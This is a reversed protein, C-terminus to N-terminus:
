KKSKGKDHPVTVTASILKTNGSADIAQYTITYVRSNGNGSREARLYISGDEGIQIDNTTNSDGKGNDDENMTISILTVTPSEDCNDSVTITPTILVMKHNPPWLITPTATLALDPPANDLVMIILRDPESDETSDNVILTITHEGLPLQISPNVGNAEYLESDITWTWSYTLEDGDPDNSDSGDLTVEALCDTGVFATQDPGANAVPPQNLSVISVIGNTRTEEPVSPFYITAYNIIETGDNADAKVNVSLDAYGGRHPGVEGAFWIIARTAPNYTGPGSIVSGNNVDIVSGIELTSDDLDEDLTDTFYVGFAIGEGENEYEVTYDLRQGPLVNGEPGYKVSPDRATRIESEHSDIGCSKGRLYFKYLAEYSTVDWPIDGRMQADLLNWRIHSLWLYSKAGSWTLERGITFYGALIENFFPVPIKKLLEPILATYPRSQNLESYQKHTEQTILQKDLLWDLWQQYKNKAKNTDYLEKAGELVEGAVKPCKVSVELKDISHGEVTFHWMIQIEDTTEVYDLVPEIHEYVETLITSMSFIGSNSEDYINATMEIPQETAQLIDYTVNPNIQVNTKDIPVTVIHDLVTGQSLGWLITERASVHGVYKAPIDDFHWIVEHSESNYQGGDTSSVYNTTPPLKMIVESDEALKVGDNRYEIIYDITQGPSVRTPGWTKVKLDPAPPLGLDVRKVALFLTRPPESEDLTGSVIGFLPSAFLGKLAVRGPAVVEDYTWGQGSGTESIYSIISFGQGDYPNNGDIIRVHNMVTSLSGAYDGSISGEVNTQLFYLQTNPFEDSSQYSLNGSLQITASTTTTGLQGIKWTAQYQDYIGSGLISETLYGEVAASIEGSMSGKLYIKGEEPKPFVVGQWSGTYDVGEFTTECQGKSFGKGIWPGTTVNIIEFSNFDLTSNFDGEVTVNNLVAKQGILTEVMTSETSSAEVLPNIPATSHVRIPDDVDAGTTSGLFGDNSNASWDFVLQEETNPENFNWYGILGAEFGTLSTYMTSQIQEGTRAYNWIRVEDMKGSLFYPYGSVDDYSFYLPSSNGVPISGVEKTALLNGDLYIGMVQGDYTAAIHYWQDIELSPNAGTYWNNWYEGIAFTIEQEQDPGGMFLRYNGSTRDGGKCVLFQSNTWHTTLRDLKAWCEVTIETPNLLPTNPVIVRDDGDFKLANDVGVVVTFSGEYRDNIDEGNIGDKDQDMKDGDLDDIHSGIYVNYEGNESQSPFSIRYTNSELFEITIQNIPIVGSPTIINVDQTTFTNNDISRSFTVDVHDVSSAVFGEPTHQSVWLGDYTFVRINDVYGIGNSCDFAFGKYLVTAPNIALTARYDGNIWIDAQNQERDVRAMVNIWQGVIAQYDSELIVVDESTFAILGPAPDWALGSTLRIGLTPTGWAGVDPNFLQVMADFQHCGSRGTEEGRIDASFWIVFHYPLPHYLQSEWCGLGNDMKTCYPSSVAEEATVTINGGWRGIWGGYGGSSLNAGEPYSDFDEFLLLSYEGANVSPVMTALLLVFVIMGINLSIRTRM